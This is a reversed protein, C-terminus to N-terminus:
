LAGGRPEDAFQLAKVTAAGALAALERKLAAIATLIAQASPYVITRTGETVTTGAKALKARQADIDAQITAADRM